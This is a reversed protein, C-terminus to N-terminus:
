GEFFADFFAPVTICSTGGVLIKVKPNIRHFADVTDLAELPSVGGVVFFVLRECQEAEAEGLLANSLGGLWGSKAKPSSASSGGISLRETDSLLLGENSAAMSALKTLLSPPHHPRHMRAEGGVLTPADLDNLFPTRVGSLHRVEGSFRLAKHTVLKTFAHVRGEEGGALISALRAGLIPALVARKDQADRSDASIEHCLMALVSEYDDLLCVAVDEDALAAHVNTSMLRLLSRLGVSMEQAKQAMGMADGLADKMRGTIVPLASSLLPTTVPPAEAHSSPAIARVIGILQQKRAATLAHQPAAMATLFLHLLRGSDSIARPLLKTVEIDGLGSLVSICQSKIDVLGTESDLLPYADEVPVGHGVATNFSGGELPARLDLGREMLVVGTNAGEADGHRGVEGELLKGVVKCADGLCWISSVKAGTSRCVAALSTAAAAYEELLPVGVRHHVAPDLFEVGGLDRADFPAINPLHLHFTADTLFSCPLPMCRTGHPPRQCAPSTVLVAPSQRVGLSKCKTHARELNRGDHLLCVATIERGEGDGKLATVYAAAAADENCLELGYVGCCESTLLLEDVLGIVRLAQLAGDDCVLAKGHVTVNHRALCANWIPLM